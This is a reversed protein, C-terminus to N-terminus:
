GVPGASPSPGPEAFNVAFSKPHPALPYNRERWADIGGLL